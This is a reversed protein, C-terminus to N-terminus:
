ARMAERRFLLLLDNTLWPWSGYDFSHATRNEEALWGRLEDLSFDAGRRLLWEREGAAVVFAGCTPCAYAYVPGPQDRIEIPWWNFDDSGCGLPCPDALHELMEIAPDNFLM